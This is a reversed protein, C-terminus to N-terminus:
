ERRPRGGKKGNERAAAVKARSKVSGGRRSFESMAQHTQAAHTEASKLEVIFKDGLIAIFMSRGNSPEGYEDFLALAADEFKQYVSESTSRTRSSAAVERWNRGLSDLGHTGAIVGRQVDVALEFSMADVGDWALRIAGELAAADFGDSGEPLRKAAQAIATKLNFDM